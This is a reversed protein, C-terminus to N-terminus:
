NKLFMFIVTNPFVLFSSFTTFTAYTLFLYHSFFSYFFSSLSLIFLHEIFLLLPSFFISIFSSDLFFFVRLERVRMLGKGRWEQIVYCGVKWWRRSSAAEGGDCWGHGEEGWSRVRGIAGMEVMERDMFLKSNLRWVLVWLRLCGQFWGKIAGSIGEFRWSNCGGVGVWIVM